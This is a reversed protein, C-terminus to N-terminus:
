TAAVCPKQFSSFQIFYSDIVLRSQTRVQAIVQHGGTHITALDSFECLRIVNCLLYHFTRQCCHSLPRNYNAIRRTCILIKVQESATTSHISNHKSALPPLSNSVDDTSRSKTSIHRLIMQLIGSYNSEFSNNSNANDYLKTM